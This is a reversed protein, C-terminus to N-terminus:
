TAIIKCWVRRSGLAHVYLVGDDDDSRRARRDAAKEALQLVDGGRRQARARNEGRDFARIDRSVADVLDQQAAHQRRALALRRRALRREARPQRERSARRRDVLHAARAHLRRHDGVVEQARARGVHRHGAAHLAHAVRGIQEIARPGAIAHAVAAREVVHEEVPELVGVVLAAQHPGEGLIASLVVLESPSLLVGEREGRQLAGVARDLFAREGPLDSADAHLRALRLRQNRGVLLRGLRPGVLDRREFGGKAFAARHGRGIRARNGVAGRRQHHHARALGLPAACRRKGADDRM